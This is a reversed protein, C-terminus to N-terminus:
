GSEEKRDDSERKGGVQNKKRGCQNKLGVQNRMKEFSANGERWGSEEKRDIQNKSEL